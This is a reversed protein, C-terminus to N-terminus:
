PADRMRVTRGHFIPGESQLFQFGIVVLDLVFDANGPLGAIDHALEVLPAIDELTARARPYGM